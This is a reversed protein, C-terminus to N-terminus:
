FLVGLNFSLDQTKNTSINAAKGTKGVGLDGWNGNLSFHVTDSVQYNFRLGMDSGEKGHDDELATQNFISHLSLALSWPSGTPSIAAEIGYTQWIQHAKEPLSVGDILSLSPTIRMGRMPRIDAFARLGQWIESDMQLDSIITDSLSDVPWTSADDPVSLDRELFTEIRIGLPNKPSSAYGLSINQSALIERGNITTGAMAGLAKELVVKKIRRSTVLHHQYYPSENLNSIIVGHKSTAHIFYGNSLYIGVHNIRDTNGRFFLLDSPELSDVDPPAKEFIDDSRSQMFSNHPLEIGFVDAYFKQSLGSCDIGNKGTGGRQYPSGYYKRVEKKFPIEALIEPNVAARLTKSKLSGTKKPLQEAGAAFVSVFSLVQFVVMIKLLFRRHTLYIRDM